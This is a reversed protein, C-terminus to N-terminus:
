LAEVALSVANLLKTSHDLVSRTLEPFRPENESDGGCEAVDLRDLLWSHLDYARVFVPAEKM